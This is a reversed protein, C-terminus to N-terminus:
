ATLFDKRICVIGDWSLTTYELGEAEDVSNDSVGTDKLVEAIYIEPFILFNDFTSQGGIGSMVRRVTQCMEEHLDNQEASNRPETVVQVAVTFAFSDFRLLGDGCVIRRGTAAGVSAKLDLRPREKYWDDLANLRTYVRMAEAALLSAIGGSQFKDKDEIAERLRYATWEM